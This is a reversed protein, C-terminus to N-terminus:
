SRASYCLDFGVVDFDDSEPFSDILVELEGPDIPEDVHLSVIYLMSATPRPAPQIAGTSMGLGAAGLHKVFAQAIDARGDVRFTIGTQTYSSM